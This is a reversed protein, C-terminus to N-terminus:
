LEHWEWRLHMGLGSLDPFITKQNISIRHLEDRIAKAKASPIIIKDLKAKKGRGKRNVSPTEVMDKAKGFLFFRGEQASIRKDIHPPEIAIPWVKKTDKNDTNLADELDLLYPQTEEWDPLAPGWLHPIHVKNWKWPDIVWVVADTDPSASSVAFYLAVLPNVTWDLLRTPAGYHAMLFYWGWKDRQLDASVLQRGVSEFELRMESENAKAYEERWRSPTLGWASNSQGRYWLAKEDGRSDIDDGNNWNSRIEAVTRLYKELSPIPITESPFVKRRSM